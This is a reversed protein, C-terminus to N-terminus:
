ASIFVKSRKGQSATSMPNVKDLIGLRKAQRFVGSLFSKIHKLSNRGLETDRAIAALLQEGDVTRFQRLTVKGLRHKLHINFM